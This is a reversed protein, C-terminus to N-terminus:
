KLAYLEKIQAETLAKNFFRLEDIQSEDSLHSWVTFTPAGSGISFDTCGDWSVSGSFTSEKVLQGDIYVACRGEAIVFAIHLWGIAPDRDADTGGDAYVEDTGNGMNLKFRQATASGERFFRFGFKREDHATNDKGCTIIGARSATGMKYWFVASFEKGLSTTLSTRAYQLYTDVSGKYANGIKGGAVTPSGVTTAKNESVLETFEADEFAMYFTEGNEGLNEPGDHGDPYDGLEPDNGLDQFCATMLSVFLLSVSAFIITKNLIRM